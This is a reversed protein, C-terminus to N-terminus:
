ATLNYGDVTIWGLLPRRGDADHSSYLFRQAKARRYGLRVVAFPRCAVQSTSWSNLSRPGTTSSSHFLFAWDELHPITGRVCSGIRGASFIRLSSSSNM